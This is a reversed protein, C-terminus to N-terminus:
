SAKWILTTRICIPTWLTMFLSPHFKTTDKNIVFCVYIWMNVCVQVNGVNGSYIPSFLSPKIKKNAHADNEQTVHKISQLIWTNQKVALSNLSFLCM